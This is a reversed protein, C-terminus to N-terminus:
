DSMLDYFIATVFAKPEELAADTVADIVIGATLQLLPRKRLIELVLPDPLRLKMAYTSPGNFDARLPNWANPRPHPISLLPLIQVRMQQNARKQALKAVRKSTSLVM